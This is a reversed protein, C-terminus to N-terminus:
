AARGSIPRSAGSRSEALARGRRRSALGQGPSALGQGKSPLGQGSSALGQRQSALGQCTYAPGRRRSSGERGSSARRRGSSFRRRARPRWQAPRRRICPWCATRTACHRFRQPDRDALRGRPGPGRGRPGPGPSLAVASFRDVRLERPATDLGRRIRRIGPPDWHGSACHGPGPPDPGRQTAVRSTRRRSQDAHDASARSPWAGGRAGWPGRVGRQGRPLDAACDAM